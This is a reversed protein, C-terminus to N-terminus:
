AGEPKPSAGSMRAKLVEKGEAGGWKALIATELNLFAVRGMAYVLILFSYGLFGTDPNDKVALALKVWITLGVLLAAVYALKTLSPRGDPGRLDAYDFLPELVHGMIWRIM